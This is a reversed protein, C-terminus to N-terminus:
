PHPVSDESRTLDVLSPARQRPAAAAVGDTGDTGDAGAPATGDEQETDRTDEAADAGVSLRVIAFEYGILLVALIVIVLLSTNLVLLLVAALAAGGAQLLGKHGAIWRRTGDNTAAGSLGRTVDATTTGVAVAAVRVGHRSARMWRYPGTVVALVAIALSGILLWVTILVLRDLVQTLIAQAAARNEPKAAATLRGELYFILRRAVVVTLASGITLQLLTRRRRPSVLMAGILLVPLLVLALGTVRDFRTVSQQVAHLKSAPFLPIQGCTQPLPRGLATSVKQCAVAPIDGTSLTPLTVPKGVIASVEPQVSQLASNLLPVLNLVVTNGQASITKSDGKLIAVLQAQAFRNAETWLTAFQPSSIAKNVADGLFTKVQGAVPGALFAAKPPLAAKIAPQPDLAAYIQDTLQKGVATTITPNSALPAVTAVYRDTNFVTRHTWALTTALPLLLAFLLVLFAALLRRAFQGRAHREGRRDLQAALTDREARLRVIEDTTAATDPPPSGRGENTPPAASPPGSTPDTM